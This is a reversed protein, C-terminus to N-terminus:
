AVTKQTEEEELRGLWGCCLGGKEKKIEQEVKGFLSGLIQMGRWEEAGNCRKGIKKGMKRSKGM